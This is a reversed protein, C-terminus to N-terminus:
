GSLWNYTDGTKVYTYTLLTLPNYWRDGVLKIIPEVTSTSFITYFVETWVKSTKSPYSDGTTAVVAIFLRDEYLVIDNKAYQKTNGNSDWTNFITFQNLNIFGSTQQVGVTGLASLISSM